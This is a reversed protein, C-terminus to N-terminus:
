PCPRACGPRISALEVDGGFRGASTARLVRRPPDMDLEFWAAAVGGPNPDVYVVRACHEGITVVQGLQLATIVVLGFM